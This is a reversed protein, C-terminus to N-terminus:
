KIYLIDNRSLTGQAEKQKRIEKAVRKPAPKAYERISKNKTIKFKKAAARQSRKRPETQESKPKSSESKQGVSKTAEKSEEDKASM